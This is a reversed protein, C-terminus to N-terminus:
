QHYGSVMKPFCGNSFCPGSIKGFDKIGDSLERTIRYKGESTEHLILACMKVGALQELDELMWRFEKLYSKMFEARAEPDVLKAAERAEKLANNANEQWKAKEAEPLEKFEASSLARQRGLSPQGFEATYKDIRARYVGVNSRRWQDHALVKRKLHPLKFSPNKPKPNSSASANGSPHEVETTGERRTTNDLYSYIQQGIKM